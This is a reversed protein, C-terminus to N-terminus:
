NGRELRSFWRRQTVLLPLVQHPEAGIQLEGPRVRCCCRRRALPDAKLRNGTQKAVPRSSAAQRGSQPPRAGGCGDRLNITSRFVLAATKCDGILAYDEIRLAM